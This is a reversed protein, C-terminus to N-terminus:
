LGDETCGRVQDQRLGLERIGEMGGNVTSGPLAEKVGSSARGSNVRGHFHWPTGSRIGGGDRRLREREPKCGRVYWFMSKFGMQRFLVELPGRAGEATGFHTMDKLHLQKIYVQLVNDNITRLPDAGVVFRRHLQVIGTTTGARVITKDSCMLFIALYDDGLQAALGKSSATVRESTASM